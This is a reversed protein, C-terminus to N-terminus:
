LIPAETGIPDMDSESSNRPVAEYTLEFGDARTNEDTFFFITVVSSNFSILKTNNHTIVDYGCIYTVNSEKYEDTYIM